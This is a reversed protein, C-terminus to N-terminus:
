KIHWRETTKLYEEHSLTDKEDPENILKTLETQQEETLEDWWDKEASLLEKAEELLNDNDCEEVTKTSRTEVSYEYFHKKM